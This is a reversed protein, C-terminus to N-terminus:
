DSDVGDSGGALKSHEEASRAFVEPHGQLGRPSALTYRLIVEDLAEEPSGFGAEQGDVVESSVAASCVRWKSDDGKRMQWFRNKLADHRLTLLTLERQVGVLLPGLIAADAEFKKGARESSAVDDVLDRLFDIKNFEKKM